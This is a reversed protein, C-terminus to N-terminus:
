KIQGDKKAKAKRRKPKPKGPLPQLSKWVLEEVICGITSASRPKGAARQIEVEQLLRTHAAETLRCTIPIKTVTNRPRGGPHPTTQKAM